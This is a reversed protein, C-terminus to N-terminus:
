PSGGYEERLAANMRYMKMTQEYEYESMRLNQAPTLVQSEEAEGGHLIDFSSQSSTPRSLATEKEKIM